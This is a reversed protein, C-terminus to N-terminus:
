NFSVTAIKKERISEDFWYKSDESTYEEQLFKLAQKDTVLNETKKVLSFLWDKEVIVILESFDAEEDPSSGDFCEGCVCFAILDKHKSFDIYEPINQLIQKRIKNM